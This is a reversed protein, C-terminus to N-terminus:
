PFVIKMQGDDGIQPDGLFFNRAINQKMTVKMEEFSQYAERSYEFIPNRQATGRSTIAYQLQQLYDVEEVWGDDLANLMCQRTYEQLQDESAFCATKQDYLRAAYGEMRKLLRQQDRKRHGKIEIAEPNLEYTLNDLVYRSLERETLNPHTGVFHELNDRVIAQMTERGIEAKDLLRDRAGYLIERQRRLIEDYRVSQERSSIGQEEMTKQAGDILRKLKGKSIRRNGELYDETKEGNMTSVIEDELSVFFQSSGRDGQRGARGRAQRELRVNEMRGVGIVALGGLEQVGDQLKIDTGRGAMGTSVTVADRMGAAAIIEAEWYANDANLVSHPVSENVLMRSFIQTDQITATVILVPQGTQHRRLTEELAAQYQEEATVFYRDKRDIRQLKRHPPVIVVKKHYVSRLERKADSITGSMGCMKPFMLFLNQYTISAVSRQEQSLKVHEKQELAQHEGGRLKMGPLSRGTSNDLLVIEDQDSVMYDNQREFLVHARLALTVHRNLEFNDHDYFSQVGFFREAYQVGRDTLWVGKDETEYDRDEQLTSVFFDAMQYLNSQVRPSGSIVLPMQAGDLLVSDAEDIIIFYFDRLFRDEARMVLNNLLYDFALASHTTYLIDANYNARKQDNTLFEGPRQSVGAREELGMFKFVPRMEDADRYALYENATVLITSKGTLANLYLPLTATLTKGEGTNMEALYGQEMAVAGFIQVDYPFKGLVRRDAECIAAFAEPLIQALTKGNKLQAKLKPTEAQLQEDTLGRMRKAYAKVKKVLNNLRRDSM